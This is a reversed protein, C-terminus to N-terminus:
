AATQKGRTKIQHSLLLQVLTFLVVDLCFIVSFSVGLSFLAGNVLCYAMELGLICLLSVRMSYGAALFKHHIHTKDAHFISVGNKLRFLAVRILDFTPILLLTFSMLLASPRYPLVADNDMALKIALYSLSYGLILSGTDGMFTKTMKEVKGFMNFYFFVVVAGMLGMSFIAYHLAELQYFLFSFAGLAILSLGSALGDIGDILNISNVVLLCIFITLPYGVWMPIEHIGMFGYLNNFYLNCLPLFLSAIFQILFKFKAPLGLIDDLLGILYILFIGILILITSLTFNPLEVGLYLMALLAVTMGMMTCPMFLVGGLRPIKNHHVKRENPMDYLGRRKCLRLLWPMILYATVASVLFSLFPILNDM